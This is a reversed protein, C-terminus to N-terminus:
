GFELSSVEHDIKKVWTQDISIHKTGGTRTESRDKHVTSLKGKTGTSADRKWKDLPVGMTNIRKPTWRGLLFEGSEDWILGTRTQSRCHSTSCVRKHCKSSKFPVSRKKERERKLISFWYAVRTNIKPQLLFFFFAARAESRWENSALTIELCAFRLKNELKKSMQDVLCRNKGGEVNCDVTQDSWWRKSRIKRGLLYRVM